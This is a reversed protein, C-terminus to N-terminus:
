EGEGTKTAGRTGDLHSWSLLFLVKQGVDLRRTVIKSSFASFRKLRLDATGTRTGAGCGPASTSPAAGARSVWGRELQTLYLLTSDLLASNLAPFAFYLKTQRGSESM